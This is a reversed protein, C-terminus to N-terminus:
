PIREQYEISINEYKGTIKLEMLPKTLAIQRKKLNYIMIVKQHNITKSIRM